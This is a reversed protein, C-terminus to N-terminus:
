SSAVSNCVVVVVVVVVLLKHPRAKAVATRCGESEYLKDDSIM